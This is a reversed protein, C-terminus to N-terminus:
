ALFVVFGPSMFVRVDVELVVFFRLFTDVCPRVNCPHSSRSRM